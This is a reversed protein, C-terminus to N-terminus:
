FEYVRRKKKNKRSKREWSEKDKNCRFSNSKRNNNKKKKSKRKNHIISEHSENTYYTSYLDYNNNLNSQPLINDIQYESDYINNIFDDSIMDDYNINYSGDVKNVIICRCFPCLNRVLKYYCDKCIQHGCDLHKINESHIKEDLCITCDM